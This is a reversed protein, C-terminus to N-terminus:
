LPMTLFSLTRSAELMWNCVEDFMSGSKAWRLTIEFCAKRSVVSREVPLGTRGAARPRVQPRAVEKAVGRQGQLPM